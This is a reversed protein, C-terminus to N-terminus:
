LLQVWTDKLMGALWSPWCPVWMCGVAHTCKMKILHSERQDIYIILYQRRECYPVMVCIYIHLYTYVCITLTHIYMYIHLYMFMQVYKCIAYTYIYIKCAHLLWSGLLRGCSLGPLRTGDNQMTTCVLSCPLPAKV